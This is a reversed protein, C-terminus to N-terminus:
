AAPVVLVQGAVVTSTALKNLKVIETYRKGNGLLKQAISWASDGSKVTYTNLITGNDTCEVKEWVTITVRTGTKNNCTYLVLNSTYKTSIATKDEFALFKGTNWGNAIKEVCKYAELGNATVIYATTGEAVTDNHLNAFGQNSHDAVVTNGDNWKFMAASDEADVITQLKSLNKTEFLAVDVEAEPICIRGYNARTKIEAATNKKYSASITSTTPLVAEDNTSNANAAVAIVAAIAAAIIAIITTKKM